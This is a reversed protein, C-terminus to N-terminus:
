WNASHLDAFRLNFVRWTLSDHVQLFCNFLAENKETWTALFESGLGVIQQMHKQADTPIASRM